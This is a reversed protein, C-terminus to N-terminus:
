TPFTAKPRPTYDAAKRAWPSPIPVVPPPVAAVPAELRGSCSTTCLCPFAIDLRGIASGNPAEIALISGHPCNAVIFRVMM